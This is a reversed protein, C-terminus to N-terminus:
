KEENGPTGDDALVHRQLLYIQSAAFVVTLGLIGFVKFTVWVDTTQTRWVAENLAAMAAFFVAFRFTLKRWGSEDMQWAAGLLPKLLPKGAMLGGLLVLSFIVQVITPKMKIFTEDELWLTLGGFVAVVVATIVPMLPLRRELGWTVALAALTAAILAATAPLLGFLFYCGFFVVLPGFETLPKVWKRGTPAATTQKISM